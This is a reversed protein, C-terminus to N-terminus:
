RGILCQMWSNNCGFALIMKALTIGLKVLKPLFQLLATDAKLEQVIREAPLHQEVEQSTPAIALYQIQM